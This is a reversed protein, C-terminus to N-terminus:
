KSPKDTDKYFAFIIKKKCEVKVEWKVIFQWSEEVYKCIM